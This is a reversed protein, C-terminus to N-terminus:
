MIQTDLCNKLMLSTISRQCGEIERVGQKNVEKCLIVVLAIVSNMSGQRSHALYNLM